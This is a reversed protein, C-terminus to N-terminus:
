ALFATIMTELKALSSESLKGEKRELWFKPITRVTGFEVTLDCLEASNTTWKLMITTPSESSDSIGNKAPVIEVTEDPNAHPARGNKDVIVGFYKHETTNCFVIVDGATYDNLQQMDEGLGSISM